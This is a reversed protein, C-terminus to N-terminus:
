YRGTEAYEQWNYESPSRYDYYRECYEDDYDDDEGKLPYPERLSQEAAEILEIEALADLKARQSPLDNWNTM